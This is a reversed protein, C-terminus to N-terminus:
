LFIGNDSLMLFVTLFRNYHQIRIQGIFKKGNLKISINKKSFVELEDDLIFNINELNSLIDSLIQKLIKNSYENKFISIELRVEHCINDFKGEKDSVNQMTFSIDKINKNVVNDIFLNTIVIFKVGVEEDVMIKEGFLSSCDELPSSIIRNLKLDYITFNENIDGKYIKTINGKSKAEKTCSLNFILLLITLLSLKKRFYVM